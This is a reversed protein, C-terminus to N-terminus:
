STKKFTMLLKQARSPQACFVDLDTLSTDLFENYGPLDRVVPDLLDVFGMSWQSFARKEVPKRLLTIMGRHRPDRQIRAHLENIVIDEGEIAQMFNGNKYLLMGTVDVAANNRRSKELLTVLEAPSFPETASSVYVLSILM